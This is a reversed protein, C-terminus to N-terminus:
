SKMRLRNLAFHVAEKLPTLDREVVVWLRESEIRDYEHRLFNGLGRIEPWAIGPCLEEALAGLKRAAESIRELCREVADFTKNDDLFAAADMGTTYSEIRATNDLIDEFRQVPDNSPV